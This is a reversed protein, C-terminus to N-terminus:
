GDLLLNYRAVLDNYEDILDAHSQDRVVRYM